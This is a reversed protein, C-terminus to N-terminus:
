IHILSLDHVSSAGGVYYYPQAANVGSPGLQTMLQPLHPYQLMQLLLHVPQPHATSPSANPLPPQTRVVSM